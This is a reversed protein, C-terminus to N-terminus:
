NFGFLLKILYNATYFLCYMKFIRKISFSNQNININFIPKVIIISSKYPSDETQNIRQQIIRNILYTIDCENKCTPCTPISDEELKTQIWGNICRSHFRHQCDFYNPIDEESVIDELCIACIESNLM